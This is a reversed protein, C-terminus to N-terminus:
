DQKTLILCLRDADWIVHAGEAQAVVKRIVDLQACIVDAKRNDYYFYYETNDTAYAVRDAWQGTHEYILECYEKNTHWFRRTM